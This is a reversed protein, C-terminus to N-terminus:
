GGMTVCSRGQGPGPSLNRSRRPGVPRGSGLCALRRARFADCGLDAGGGHRMWMVVRVLDGVRLQWDRYSSVKQRWEADRRFKEAMSERRRQENHQHQRYLQQARQYSIGLEDAIDRYTRGHNHQDAVYSMRMATTWGPSKMGAGIPGLRAGTRPWSAVVRGTGRRSNCSRCCAVLNTPDLLAGGDALARVHDVTDAYGCCWRCVRGDRELVVLRLRQWAAGYGRATASGKM